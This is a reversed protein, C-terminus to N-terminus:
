ELRQRLALPLRRHDFTEWTKSSPLKAEKRLRNIRRHRRDEAEQELVELFTPLAYGHGATTLRSVAQAGMSPFRFQHCLQGNREQIAMTDMTTNTM